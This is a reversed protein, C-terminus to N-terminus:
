VVLSMDGRVMRPFAPILNSPPCFITLVPICIHVNCGTSWFNNIHDVGYFDACQMMSTLQICPGGLREQTTVCPHSTGSYWVGPVRSIDGYSDVRTPLAKSLPPRSQLSLIWMVEVVQLVKLKVHVINEHCLTCIEATFLILKTAPMKNCKLIYKVTVCTRIPMALIGQQEISIQSNFEIWHPISVQKSLSYAQRLEAMYVSRCLM